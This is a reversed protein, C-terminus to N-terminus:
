NNLTDVFKPGNLYGPGFSLDIAIIFKFLLTDGLEV